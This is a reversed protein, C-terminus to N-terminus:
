GTVEHPTGTIRGAALLQGYHEECLAVNWTTGEYKAAEESWGIDAIWRAAKGCRADAPSAKFGCKTEAM